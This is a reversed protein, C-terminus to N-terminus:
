KRALISYDPVLFRILNYLRFLSIIKIFFKQSPTKARVLNKIYYPLISSNDLPILHTFRRYSPFPSYFKVESFGTKNLLERYGPLSHTHTRYTTGKLIKCYIDALVRPFLSIFRLHVHPDEWGLIYIAAFRNEIGIYLYGDKKLVRLSEKLLTNQLEIVSKTSDMMGAWELVGNLVVLDFTESPFPLELVDGKVAIINDIGDQEARIQMFEVKEPVADLAYVKGCTKSLSFSLAGWGAGADLVVSRKNLPLLFQWDARSDDFFMDYIDHNRPKIINELAFRWGKEKSISVLNGMEAGSFESWYFKNIKAM